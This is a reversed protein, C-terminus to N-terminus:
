RKRSHAHQTKIINGLLRDFEAVNIKVRNLTEDASHQYGNPHKGKSLYYLRVNKCQDRVANYDESVKKGSNVETAVVVHYKLATSFEGFQREKSKGQVFETKTGKIAEIQDDWKQCFKLMGDRNWGTDAKMDVLHNISNNAEQIVIDPYKTTSGNFRIPQDTFYKCPNPNNLALFLAMLDELDSSIASSRGRLINPNYYKPDRSNFYLEILKRFFENPSMKTAYKSREREAPDTENEPM